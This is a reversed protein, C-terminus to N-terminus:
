FRLHVSLLSVTGSEKIKMLKLWPRLQERKWGRINDVSMSSDGITYPPGTNSHIQQQQKPQQMTTQVVSIAFCFIKSAKTNSTV